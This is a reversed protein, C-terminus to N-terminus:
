GLQPLVDRGLLRIHDTDTVDYLHCYVTDAGAEALEALRGTVDAPDGTVGMRLMRLGAEGLSEARRAAEARTQGCCVPLTTSLRVQAPDRGSQECIRRFNAFREAVGGPNPGM